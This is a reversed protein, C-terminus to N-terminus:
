WAYVKYKSGVKELYFEGGGFVFDDILLERSWNVFLRGFVYM